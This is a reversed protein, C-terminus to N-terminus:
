LGSESILTPYYNAILTQQAAPLHELRVPLDQPRTQKQNRLNILSWNRALGPPEHAPLDYRTLDIVKWPSQHRWDRLLALRFKRNMYWRVEVSADSGFIGTGKHAFRYNLQANNPFEKRWAMGFEGQTIMRTNPWRRRVAHLWAALSQDAGENDMLCLEWITTAWGFRNLAFGRDFHIGTTALLQRLGVKRSFNHQFLTEIPGLGLRSNFGDKFGPQRAAVFDCTWGDLSVCDIFDAPGQAPKLTHERSPYYPYCISGDDDLADIGYQSWINGQCVHIDQEEALFRHNEAALYGAVVSKPRYGGGVLRSVAALGAHLDRSVQKRYNYVNPFFGGVTFTIEDGYRHHYELAQKRVARYNRSQEHLALWSIAWTIRGQPFERTIARRMRQMNAPTNRSEENSGFWRTRSAEVSNVRIIANFTLYRQGWFPPDPRTHGITVAPGLRQKM